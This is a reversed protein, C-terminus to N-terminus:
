WENEMQRWRTMDVYDDLWRVIMGGLRDMWSEYEDFKMLWNMAAEFGWKELVPKQVEFAVDQTEAEPYHKFFPQKELLFIDCIIDKALTTFTTQRFIPNLATYGLFKSWGVIYDRRSQVVDGVLDQYM